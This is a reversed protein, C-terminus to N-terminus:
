FTFAFINFVCTKKQTHNNHNSGRSRMEMSNLNLLFVCKLVTCTQCLRELTDLKRHSLLNGTLIELYYLYSDNLQLLGPRNQETIIHRARVESWADFYSTQM